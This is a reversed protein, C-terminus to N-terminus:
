NHSELADLCPVSYIVLKYTTHDFNLNEWFSLKQAQGCDDGILVNLNEM